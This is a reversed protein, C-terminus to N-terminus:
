LEMFFFIGIDEKDFNMDKWSCVSCQKPNIWILMQATVSRLQIEKYGQDLHVANPDEIKEFRLILLLQSCCTTRTDFRILFLDSLQASTNSLQLPDMRQCAM